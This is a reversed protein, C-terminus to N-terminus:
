MARRNSERSLMECGRNTLVSSYLVSIDDVLREIGFNEEVFEKAQVVMRRISDRGELAILIAASVSECNSDAIIGRECLRFGLYEVKVGGLLDMVGGVGTSVVPIGLMMAQIVCVPTGENLSTLVLCSCERMYPVVDDVWGTVVVRDQGASERVALLKEFEPGDGALLFGCESTVSTALKATQCLLDVNKIPVARGFWGVWRFKSQRLYDLSPLPGALTGSPKVSVGLRIIRVMQDPAIRFRQCIDYKQAESLVIIQDTWIALFREILSITASAFGGFYKELVHGHFTHVIRPVGTIVAAIRGLAGAKSTHTHVLDPRLRRLWAVLQFLAILDRWSVRRSMASVTVIDDAPSAIYRMDVDSEDCVGIALQMKFGKSTLGRHLAIVHPPPGGGGLRTMAQGVIVAKGSMRRRPRNSFLWSRLTM